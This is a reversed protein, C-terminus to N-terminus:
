HGVNEGCKRCVRHKKKDKGVKMGIRVPKSCKTCYIMVNSVHIAAEKEVIGGQPMKQTPKQHRKVMNLKEVFVRESETLFSIVKGRKGKEKGAIVMVEDNKRLM